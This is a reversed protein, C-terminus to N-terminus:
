GTDQDPSPKTQIIEPLCRAPDAASRAPRQRRARWALITGSLAGAGHALPAPAFPQDGLLQLWSGGSFFDGIVQLALAGLCGLCLWHRPGAAGLGLWALFAIQATAIGSLGGYFAMQPQLVLLALSIALASGTYLAGAACRPGREIAAGALAVVALDLLLHSASFHVLHGSLLRWLEGQGIAHRDFVLVEALGPVLYSLSAAAVLLLTWAPLRRSM